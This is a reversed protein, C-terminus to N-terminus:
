RRARVLLGPAGRVQERWAPARELVYQGLLKLLPPSLGAVRPESLLISAATSAQLGAMQVLATVDQQLASLTRLSYRPQQERMLQEVMPRMVAALPVGLQKAFAQWESNLEDSRV